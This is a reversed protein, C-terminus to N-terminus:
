ANNNKFFTVYLNNDTVGKKSYLLAYRVSKITIYTYAVIQFSTLFAEEVEFEQQMARQVVGDVTTFPINKGIIFPLFVKEGKTATFDFKVTKSTGDRNLTYTMDVVINYSDKSYSTTFDVLIGNGNGVLNQLTVYTADQKYQLGNQYRYRPVLTKLIM